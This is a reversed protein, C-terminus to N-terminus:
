KVLKDIVKAVITDDLKLIGRTKLNLMADKLIKKLNARDKGLRDIYKRLFTELRETDRIEYKDAKAYEGYNLLTSSYTEPSIKGKDLMDKLKAKLLRMTEADVRKKHKPYLKEANKRVKDLNVESIKRKM